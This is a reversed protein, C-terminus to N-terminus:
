ECFSIFRTRLREDYCPHGEIAGENLMTGYLDRVASVGVVATYRKAQIVIKGGRIPDPDFVVADVGGDASARTVKVESGETAFEREFIERVLHEFDAWDISALNVGADLRGVVEYSAIFRPDSTNLRAIPAVPTTGSLKAASIGKLQKFCARPDV